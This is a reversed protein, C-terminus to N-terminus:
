STYPRIVRTQPRPRSDTAGVSRPQPRGIRRTRRVGAPDAQDRRQAIIGWACIGVIAVFIAAMLVVNIVVFTGGSM